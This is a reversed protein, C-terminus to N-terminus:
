THLPSRHLPRINRVSPAIEGTTNAFMVVNTKRLAGASLVREIEEDDRAFVVEVNRSAALIAIVPEAVDISDHHFGATATVVVILALANM